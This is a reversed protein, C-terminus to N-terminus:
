GTFRNRTLTQRFCSLKNLLKYLISYIRCLPIQAYRNQRHLNSLVEAHSHKVLDRFLKYQLPRSLGSFFEIFAKKNGWHLCFGDSAYAKDIRKALESLRNGDFHNGSGPEPLLGLGSDFYWTLLKQKFVPLIRNSFAIGPIFVQHRGTAVSLEHRHALAIALAHPYFGDLESFPLKIAALLHRQHVFGSLYLRNHGLLTSQTWKPQRAPDPYPNQRDDLADLFYREAPVYVMPKGQEVQQLASSIGEATFRFNPELYGLYQGSASQSASLWPNQGADSTQLVLTRTSTEIPKITQNGVAFIIVEAKPCCNKVNELRQTLENDDDFYPILVSLQINGASDPLKIAPLVPSVTRDPRSHRALQAAFWTLGQENLAQELHEAVQNDGDLWRLMLNELTSFSSLHKFQELFSLLYQRNDNASLNHLKHDFWTGTPFSMLLNQAIRAALAPNSNSLQQFGWQRIAHSSLTQALAKSHTLGTPNLRWLLVIEPVNAFCHGAAMMRTFIDYDPALCSRDEWYLGVSEFADRRVLTTPHHLAFFAHNCAFVTAPEVPQFDLGTISGETDITLFQGGVGSIDPNAELFALQVALRNPLAIDDADMIAIYRGKAAKIGTNTAAGVGQNHQHIVRIRPDKRAFDLAIAASDDRSGDNVIILEFDSWTQRLISAIAAALYSGGNYVAMIVSIPCANNHTM